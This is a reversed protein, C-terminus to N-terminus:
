AAESGSETSTGSQRMHAEALSTLLERSIIDAFLGSERRLCHDCCEFSHGYSQVNHTDRGTKMKYLNVRARFKALGRGCTPCTHSEKRPRGKPWGV